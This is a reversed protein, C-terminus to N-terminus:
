SEDAAEIQAVLFSEIAANILSDADWEPHDFVFAAFRDFLQATLETEISIPM